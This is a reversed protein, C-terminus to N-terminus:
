LSKTVKWYGTKDFGIHHLLDKEKLARIARKIITIDRDIDKAM